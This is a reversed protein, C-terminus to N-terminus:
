FLDSKKFCQVLEYSVHLGEEDLKERRKRFSAERQEATTSKRDSLAFDKVDLETRIIKNLKLNFTRAEFQKAFFWFYM